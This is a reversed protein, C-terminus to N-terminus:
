FRTPQQMNMNLEQARYVALIDQSVLVMVKHIGNMRLVDSSRIGYRMIVGHLKMISKQFRQTICRIIVEINTQRCDRNALGISSM